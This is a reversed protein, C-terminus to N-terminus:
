VLASAPLGLSRFLSLATMNLVEALARITTPCRFRKTLRGAETVVALETEKCHTDAGIFHERRMPAEKGDPKITVCDIYGVPWLSAGNEYIKLHNEGFALNVQRM